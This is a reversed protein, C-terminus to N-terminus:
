LWGLTTRWRGDRTSPTSRLIKVQPNPNILSENLMAVYSGMRAFVMRTSAECTQLALVDAAQTADSQSVRFHM